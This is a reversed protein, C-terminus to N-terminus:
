GDPSVEPGGGEAVRWPTGGATRVAWIEREAGNPDHSPNAIWGQRNPASGRVFVAITGDDSLNVDTLDRGDDDLFRTLRVPRFDPAAATYVNRMGREYTMWAVRDAKRASTVELPSAPSLYQAITPKTQAVTRSPAQAFLAPALAVLPSALRVVRCALSVSRTMPSEPSPRSAGTPPLAPPSRLM